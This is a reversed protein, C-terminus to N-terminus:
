HVSLHMKDMIAQRTRSIRSRITGIPCNMQDAIEQYSLGDNERLDFAIQFEIPLDEIVKVVASAIERSGIISEPTDLDTLLSNQGASEDYQLDSQFIMTDLQDQRHHHSSAVNLTIRYIWTYFSAEGRFGNLARYARIFAEQVIDDADAHNRTSRLALHLLRSRYKTVLTGFAHPDGYQACQILEEDNSQDFHM